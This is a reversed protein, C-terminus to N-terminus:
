ISFLQAPMVSCSQAGLKLEPPLNDFLDGLCVSPFVFPIENVSCVIKM